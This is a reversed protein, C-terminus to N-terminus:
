YSSPCRSCSVVEGIMAAFSDNVRSFVDVGRAARESDRGDSVRVATRMGLEARADVLECPRVNNMGAVNAIGGDQAIELLVRGDRRHAPVDITAIPRIEHRDVHAALLAGQEPHQHGVNRHIARLDSGVHRADRSGFARREDHATM